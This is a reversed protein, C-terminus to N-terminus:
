KELTKGDDLELIIDDMKELLADAKLEILDMVKGASDLQKLLAGIDFQDSHPDFQKNDLSTIQGLQEM